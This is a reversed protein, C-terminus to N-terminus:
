SPQSLRRDYNTSTLIEEDQGVVADRRPENHLSPVSIHKSICRRDVGRRGRGDVGRRRLYPSHSELSHVVACRAAAYLLDLRSDVVYCCKAKLGRELRHPRSRQAVLVISQHASRSSGVQSGVSGKAESHVLLTTLCPQRTSAVHVIPASRMPSRGRTASM